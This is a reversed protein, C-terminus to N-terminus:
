PNANEEQHDKHDRQSEKESGEKQKEEPEVDLRGTRETDRLLDIVSEKEAQSPEKREIQKVTKPDAIFDAIIKDLDGQVEGVTKASIAKHLIGNYPERKVFELLQNRVIPINDTEWDVLKKTLILYLTILEEALSLIEHVTQTFMLTIREGMEIIDLAEKQLESGFMAYKEVESYRVIEVKLRDSLERIIPPQARGGIRSVSFGSDVAPRIGKNALGLRFLIHGDTISMLNTTIYDTIEESQTEVIPLATISGGGVKSSFCGCRELLRSHLYFVDGPYAERGPPRKLLLSIQRYVKAHRTLNDFVILVDRGEKAFFEAITMASMPALYNISSPDSARAVIFVTKELAGYKELQSIRRKIATTQADITVYIGLVGSNIKVQNGIVAAATDGKGIKKDGVLLERQGRGIPIQSDIILFGTSLPKTVQSRESVGKAIEDIYSLEGEQIKGKGDLPNGLPDIIRGILGNSVKVRMRDGTIKALDGKKINRHNGIVIIQAVKETFGIVLGGEGSSFEVINGLSVNDLGAVICIEGAVEDVRGLDRHDENM